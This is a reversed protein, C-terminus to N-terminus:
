KRFSPPIAFQGKFRSAVPKKIEAKLWPVDRNEPELKLVAECDALAAEDAGNKANIKARELYAWTNPESEISANLSEIAKAEDGDAMAKRAEILYQGSQPVNPEDSGGCGVLVPLGFM